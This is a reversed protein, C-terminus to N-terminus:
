FCACMGYSSASLQDRVTHTMRCPFLHLRRDENVKAKRVGSKKPACQTVSCCGPAWALPTAPNQLSRGGITVHRAAGKGEFLGLAPTCSPIHLLPFSLAASNLQIAHNQINIHVTYINICVYNFQIVYSTWHKNLVASKNFNRWCLRSFNNM